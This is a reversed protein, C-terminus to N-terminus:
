VNATKFRCDMSDCMWQHNELDPPNVIVQSRSQRSHCEWLPQPSGQCITSTVSHYALHSQRINWLRCIKASKPPNLDTPMDLQSPRSIGVTAGVMALLALMQWHILHRTIAFGVPDPFGTKVYISTSRVM